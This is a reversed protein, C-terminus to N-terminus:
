SGKKISKIVIPNVPKNITVKRDAVISGNDESNNKTKISELPYSGTVQRM